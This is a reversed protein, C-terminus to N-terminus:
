AALHTVEFNFGDVLDGRGWYNGKEDVGWLWACRVCRAVMHYYLTEALSVFMSRPYTM